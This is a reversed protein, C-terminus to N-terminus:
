SKGKRIESAKHALKATAMIIPKLEAPAAEYGRGFKGDLRPAMGYPIAEWNSADVNLKDGDLCKLRYGKPVPGHASEWNIRHVGRWRKQLPMDDNIKRELYGDKTVRETGVPKYLTVAHGSRAHGKKFWGKESGPIRLGKKGTNHSIQGKQFRGDSGAKWGKRTCLAKINEFSVDPRGWVSVFLAHLEKRPMDACAKLWALEEDSYRKWLKTM